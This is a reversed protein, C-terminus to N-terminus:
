IWIAPIFISEKKLFLSLKNRWEFKCWFQYELVHFINLSLKPMKVLWFKHIYVYVWWLWCSWSEKRFVYDNPSSRKRIKWNKFLPPNFHGLATVCSIGSMNIVIYIRLLKNQLIKVCQRPPTWFFRWDDFSLRILIISFGCCRFIVM